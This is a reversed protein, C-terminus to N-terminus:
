VGSQEGELSTLFDQLCEVIIQHDQEQALGSVVIAAIPGEVGKVRIPVGGGHIAYEGATEGLQFRDKFKVEDGKDFMNHAAWSSFGFRLVTNQKRRVWNDNEPVTGPRSTAHFLEQRNNALTINVVAPQESVDRLRTRISIGLAFADDSTFHPLTVSKEQAVIEDFQLPM